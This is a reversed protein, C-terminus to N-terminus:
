IAMQLKGFPQYWKCTDHWQMIREVYEDEMLERYYTVSLRGTTASDTSMVAIRRKHKRLINLANYGSLAKSPLLM